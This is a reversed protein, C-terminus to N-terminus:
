KKVVFHWTVSILLNVALVVVFLYVINSINTFFNYPCIIQPSVVILTGSNYCQSINVYAFLALIAFDIILLYTTEKWSIKYFSKKSM